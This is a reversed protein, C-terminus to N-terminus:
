FAFGGPILRLKPTELATDGSTELTSKTGKALFVIGPILVGVGAIAAVAGVITYVSALDRDNQATSPNPETSANSRELAGLLLELGGALLLAGGVGTLTAGLVLNRAPKMNARLVFRGQAPVHFKDTSRLGQGAVRYELRADLPRDCPVDCATIWENFQDHAQVRARPDSAEIHVVAGQATESSAHDLGAATPRAEQAQALGDRQAAFVAGVLVVAELKM